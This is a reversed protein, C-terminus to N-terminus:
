DYWKVIQAGNKNKFIQSEHCERKEFDEIIHKYKDLRDKNQIYCHEEYKLRHSRILEFKMSKAYYCAKSKCKPDACYYIYSKQGKNFRYHHKTYKYIKGDKDKQFHVGLELEKDINDEKDKKEEKLEEEKDENFIIHKNYKQASYYNKKPKNKHIKRLSLTKLKKKMKSKKEEYTGEPIIQIDEEKRSNRTKNYSICSDNIENNDIKPNQQIKLNEYNNPPIDPTTTNNDILEFKIQSLILSTRLLGISSIIDDIAKELPNKRDLPIVTLCNFVKKFGEKKVLNELIEKESIGNKTEEEKKIEPNNIKQHEKIIEKEKEESEKNNNKAKNKKKQNKLLKFPSKRKKGCYKNIVKPSKDITDELISIHDPIIKSEEKKMDFNNIRPESKIEKQLEGAIITSSKYLNDKSKGENNITSKKPSNVKTRNKNETPPNDKELSNKKVHSHSKPILKIIKQLLMDNEYEINFPTNMKFLVVLKKDIYNNMRKAM